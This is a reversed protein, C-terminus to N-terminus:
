LANLGMFISRPRTCRSFMIILHNVYMYQRRFKKCLVPTKHHDPPSLIIRAYYDWLFNSKIKMIKVIKLSIKRTRSM